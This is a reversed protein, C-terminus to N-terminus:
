SELNEKRKQDIKKRRKESIFPGDSYRREGYSSVRIAPDSKIVCYKECAGCGTCLEKDVIPGYLTTEGCEINQESIAQYPCHTQCVLCSSEGKWAICSSKNVVATGTKIYPKDAVPVPRIAVTPCVNTCATCDEKCYGIQPVIRPTNVKTLGDLFGCPHLAHNPCAKMCEGCAICRSLFENEPLAGPPRVPEVQLISGAGTGHLVTPAVVGAIVGTIFHRRALHPPEVPANKQKGLAFSTCDRRNQSCIGCVICEASATSKVNDHNIARVPCQRTACAHCSNCKDDHVIRRLLPYRSLLGLFAGTPCIYQCWFRRDWFGGIFVAVFILVSAFCGPVVIALIQSGTSKQVTFLNRFSDSINLALMEVTHLSPDIVVASIRTAISIPDMFFPVLIGFVSLVVLILLLVYKLRQIYVHPRRSINRAKGIIFHDSFDIATGLPCIWGCFVRGFIITLVIILIAGPILAMIVKRSAVSTLLAVLPNIQLFLETQIKAAFDSNNLFFLLIIFISFFVCQSIIRFTRLM